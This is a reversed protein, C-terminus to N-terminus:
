KAELEQLDSSIREMRKELTTTRSAYTTAERIEAAKLMCYEQRAAIFRLMLKRRDSEPKTAWKAESYECQRIQDVWWKLGSKGPM